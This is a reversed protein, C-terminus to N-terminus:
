AEYILGWMGSAGGGVAPWVAVEKGKRGKGKFDMGPKIRRIAIM